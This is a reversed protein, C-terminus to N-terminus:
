ISEINKAAEHLRALQPASAIRRAFFERLVSRLRDPDRGSVAEALRELEGAPTGLVRGEAARIPALQDQLRVLHRALPPSAGAALARMLREDPLVSGLSPAADSAVAAQPEVDVGSAPPPERECAILLLELQLRLLAVLDHEQLRPVFFGQGRREQLLGEGALRSLAERVPTASLALRDAIDNATLRVGAAHVGARLEARLTDLAIRFSDARKRVM